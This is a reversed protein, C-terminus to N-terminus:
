TADIMVQSRIDGLEEIKMMCLLSYFLSFHNFTMLIM